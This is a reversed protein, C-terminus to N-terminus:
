FNPRANPKRIKRLYERAVDFEHGLPHRLRCWQDNRANFEGHYGLFTAIVVKPKPYLQVIRVTTGPKLLKLLCLPTGPIQSTEM